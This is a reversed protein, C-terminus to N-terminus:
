NKQFELLVLGVNKWIQGGQAYFLTVHADTYVYLFSKKELYFTCSWLKFFAKVM